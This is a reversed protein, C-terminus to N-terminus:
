RFTVEPYSASPGDLLAQPEGRLHRDLFAVVYASQVAFSRQPAITGLGVLERPENAPRLAMLAPLDSFDMHGAGNVQIWLVNASANAFPAWGDDGADGPEELRGSSVLLFPRDVGTTVVDGFLSGDLNVGARIRPDLRMAAAAAAGGLSHGTFAVRGLDLARSFRGKPRADMRELLDLVSRADAVRTPLLAMIGAEDTVAVPPTVSGDPFEVAQGEGPHEIVAVLYGHSALDASLGSYLPRNVGAGPSFLVIPLRGRSADPTGSATANTRVAVVDAVPVAFDGALRTATAPLAYPVPRAKAGKGRTVPYWLQVPIRRGPRAADNAVITETGVPSLGTPNPLSVPGLGRGARPGVPFLKGLVGAIRGEGDVTLALVQRAQGAGPDLAAEISSPTAVLVGLVRVASADGSGALLANLQDPPFQTLFEATFHKTLEPVPIPLKKAADLMWRLQRGAPSDPISTSIYTPNWTAPASTTSREARPGSATNDGACAAGLLAVTVLGAGVYTRATRM